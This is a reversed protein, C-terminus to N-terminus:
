DEKLVEKAILNGLKRVEADLHQIGLELGESPKKFKKIYENYIVELAKLNPELDKLEM